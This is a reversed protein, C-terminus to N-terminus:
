VSPLFPLLRYDWIFYDGMYLTINFKRSVSKIHQRLHTAAKTDQARLRQIVKIGNMGYLDMEHIVDFKDMVKIPSNM